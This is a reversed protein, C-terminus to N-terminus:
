AEERRSLQINPFYFLLLAMAYPVQSTTQGGHGRPPLAKAPASRSGWAGHGGGVETHVGQLALWSVSSFVTQRSFGAKPYPGGVGGWTRGVPTNTTTPVMTSPPLVTPSSPGTQLPPPAQSQRAPQSHDRCARSVPLPALPDEPLRYIPFM